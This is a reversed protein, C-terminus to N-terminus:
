FPILLTCQRFVLTLNQAEVITLVLCTTRLGV